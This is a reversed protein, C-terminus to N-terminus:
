ERINRKSASELSLPSGSVETNFTVSILNIYAQVMMLDVTPLIERLQSRLINLAPLLLQLTIASLEASFQQMGQFMLIRCLKLSLLNDKLYKSISISNSIGATLIADLMWNTGRERCNWVRFIDNRMQHLSASFHYHSYKLIFENIQSFPAFCCLDM